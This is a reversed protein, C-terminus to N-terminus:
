CAQPRLFFVFHHRKLLRPVCVRVCVCVCVCLSLSGCVYRSDQDDFELYPGMLLRTMKMPPGRALSHMFAPPWECRLDLSTLKPFAATLLEALGQAEVDSIPYNLQHV